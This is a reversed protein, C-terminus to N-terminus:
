TKTMSTVGEGCLQRWTPVRSSAAKVTVHSIVGGGM